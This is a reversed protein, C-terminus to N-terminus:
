RDRCRQAPGAAGVGATPPRVARRLGAGGRIVPPNGSDTEQTARCHANAHRGDFRVPEVYHGGFLNMCCGARRADGDLRPSRWM